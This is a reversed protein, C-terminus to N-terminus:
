WNYLALVGLIFEFDQLLNSAARVSFHMLNTYMLSSTGVTAQTIYLANPLRKRHSWTKIAGHNRPKAEFVLPQSLPKPPIFLKNIRMDRLMDAPVQRKKKIKKKLCKFREIHLCLM